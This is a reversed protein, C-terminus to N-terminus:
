KYPLMVRADRLLMNQSPSHPNCEPTAHLHIFACIAPESRALLGGPRQLKRKLGTATEGGRISNARLHLRRPLSEDGRLSKFNCGADSDAQLSMSLAYRVRQLFLSLASSLACISCVLIVRFPLTCSEVIGVEWEGSGLIQHSEAHLHFCM